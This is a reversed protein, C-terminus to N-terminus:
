KLKAIKNISKYHHYIGYIDRYISKFSYIYPGNSLEQGVNGKGDWKLVNYYDNCYQNLTKIKEGYVTYINIEVDAPYKSLYFTFFTNNKFPNPFNYLHEVYSESNEQLMFDYEVLTRNNGNDWAEISIMNNGSPIDIATISFDASVKGCADQEYEFLNSNISYINNNDNNFWYRVNHQFDKMFNVGQPDEISIKLELDKNIISGDGILTNRQSLLIDPGANDNEFNNDSHVPIGKIIQISGNYLLNGTSTSDSFLTIDVTSCDTCTEIDLPINICTNESIMGTHIQSGKLTYTINTDIYSDQFFIEQSTLAININEYMTTNLGNEYLDDTINQMIEFGELIECSTNSLGENECDIPSDCKVTSDEVCVSMGIISNNTVKKPFPLILGPDGLLHFLYETNQGVRKSERVIDGIRNNNEKTMIFDNINNFFNNLYISNTYAGIGRSTTVISIAGSNNFLLKESMIEDTEDYKGFSCTGVVWIANKNLNNCPTGTNCIRNLDREMDIIKESGLTTESGHGIYNILSIGQNIYDIVDSTMQPNTIYTSNEIPEYNVGYFQSVNLSNSM